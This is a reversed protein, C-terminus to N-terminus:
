RLLLFSMYEKYFVFKDRSGLCYVLFYIKGEKKGLDCKFFIFIEIVVYMELGFQFVIIVKNRERLKMKIM